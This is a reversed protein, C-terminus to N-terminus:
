ILMWANKRRRPNSKHLTAKITANRGLPRFREALFTKKAEAASKAEVLYHMEGDGKGEDLTILYQPNKRRRPNAAVSRKKAARKKLLTAWSPIRNPKKGAKRM